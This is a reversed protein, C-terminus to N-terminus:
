PFTTDQAVKLSFERSPPRVLAIFGVTFAGNTIPPSTAIGQIRLQTQSPVIIQKPIFDEEFSSDFLGQGGVLVVTRNSESVRQAQRMVKSLPDILDVMVEVQGIAGSIFYGTKILWSETEGPDFFGEVIGAGGQPTGTLFLHRYRLRYLDGDLVPSIVDPLQAGGVQGQIGLDLGMEGLVQDNIQTV